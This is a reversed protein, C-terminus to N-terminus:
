DNLNVIRKIGRQDQGIMLHMDQIRKKLHMAVYKKDNLLSLEEDSMRGKLQGMLVIDGMLSKGTYTQKGMVILVYACSQIEFGPLYNWLSGRKSIIKYETAGQSTMTKKLSSHIYKRFIKNVGTKENYLHCRLKPQIQELNLDSVLFTDNFAPTKITLGSAFTPLSFLLAFIIKLM